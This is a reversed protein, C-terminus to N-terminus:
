VAKQKKLLLSTDNFSFLLTITKCHRFNAKTNRKPKKKENFFKIFLQATYNLIFAKNVAVPTCNEGEAVLLLELKIYVAEVNNQLLVM